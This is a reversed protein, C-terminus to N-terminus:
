ASVQLETAGALLRLANMSPMFFYVGGRVKVFKAPAALRLGFPQGPIFLSGSPDADQGDAVASPIPCVVQGNFHPNNVWAQQVFEFQSKINTNVCLFHIGRQQNDDRLDVIARKLRDRDDLHDLATLDFLPRGYPAGRRLLRHRASMHLSERPGSPRIIDRPNTRRIHSGFPCALGLPDTNAYLFDDRRAFSPQDAEPALVLPAGSPWRGVTKAALWVMFLPDPEGNCRIAEHQIYQWFGAVDQQLKRYVVYTGNVGFDRYANAHQPNAPKPLVHNPDLEAPVLPSVPLFGYENEYGLIFEGTNVGRGKIGKIQPQAAGDFFGFPEKGHAPRSGEQALESHEVVGGQTLSFGARLENRMDNLGAQTDAHLVLMVHIANGHSPNGIEWNAPSDMGTDGLSRAREDTSMGSRFEAPFTVLARHPLGMQALGAHTFAINLARAPKVKDAEARIRWSTATTVQPLIQMLWAQAQLLDRMGLFLFASNPLHGYGSTVFGQIDAKTEPSLREDITM